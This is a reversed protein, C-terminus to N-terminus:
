SGGLEPERDKQRNKYTHVALGDARSLPRRACYAAAAIAFALYVIDVLRFNSATFEVFSEISMQSFIDMVSEGQRRLWALPGILYDGLLCGAVTLISALIAFKLEIGRGPFQMALGILTGVGAAVFPASFSANMVILAYIVASLITAILGSIAAAPFNQEALLVKARECNQQKEDPTM